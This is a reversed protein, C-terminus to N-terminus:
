GSTHITEWAHKVYFLFILTRGIKVITLTPVRPPLWKSLDESKSIDSYLQVVVILFTEIEGTKDVSEGMDSLVCSGM